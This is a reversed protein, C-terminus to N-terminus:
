LAHTTVMLFQCSRKSIWQTYTKLTDKSIRSRRTDLIYKKSCSRLTMTSTM